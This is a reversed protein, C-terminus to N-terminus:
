YRNAHIPAAQLVLHYQINFCHQPALCVRREHATSAWSCLVPPHFHLMAMATQHAADDAIYGEEDDVKHSVSCFGM